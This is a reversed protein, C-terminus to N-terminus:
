HVNLKDLIIEHSESGNAIVVRIPENGLGLSSLDLSQGPSLYRDRVCKGDGECQGSATALIVTNGTNIFRGGEVLYTQRPIRPQVVLITQLELQPKAELNGSNVSTAREERFTIFFYRPSYLNEGKYYIRIWGSKRPRLILQKPAYMLDGGKSQWTAVDGYPPASERITIGYIRTLDSDNVIERTIYNREPGLFYTMDGVTLAQANGSGALAASLALSKM